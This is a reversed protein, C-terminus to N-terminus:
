RATLDTVAFSIRKKREKVQSRRKPRGPGL